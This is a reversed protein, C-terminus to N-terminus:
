VSCNSFCSIHNEFPGLLCALSLLSSVLCYYFAALLVPCRDPLMRLTCVCKSSNLNDLRNVRRARVCSLLLRQNWNPLSMSACSVLESLRVCNFPYLEVSVSTMGSQENCHEILEQIM